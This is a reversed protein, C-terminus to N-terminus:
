NADRRARFVIDNIHHSSAGSPRARSENVEITWDPKNTLTNVFDEVRVYANPDFPRSNEHTAAHARMAELDHSVILLLGGPAVANLVNHLGREDSTVWSAHAAAQLVQHSPGTVNGAAFVGIASTEGAQAIEIFDGLGTMHETPTIGLSAVMDARARFRDKVAVALSGVDVLM